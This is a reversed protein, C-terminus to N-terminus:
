PRRPRCRVVLYGGLYRFPPLDALREYAYALSRFLPWADNSSRSRFYQLPFLWAGTVREVELGAGELQAKLSPWFTWGTPEDFTPERGMARLLARLAAKIPIKLARIMGHPSLWNYQVLIFQGDPALVRCAEALAADQDPIHQIVRVCTIADVSGAELPIETASAWVLETPVPLPEDKMWNRAVGLLRRSRDLGILREARPAFHRLFRGHGCGLDLLAANKGDSFCRDLADAEVATMYAGFSGRFARDYETREWFGAKRRALVEKKEHQETALTM